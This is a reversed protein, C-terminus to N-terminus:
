DSRGLPIGLESALPMFLDARAFTVLAVDSTGSQLEIFREPLELRSLVDNLGDIVARVNCWRGHNQVPFSYGADRHVLLLRFDGNSETTQVVEDVVFQPGAIAALERVTDDHDVPNGVTKYFVCAIRKWEDLLRWVVGRADPETQWKAELDQLIESSAPVDGCAPQLKVAVEAPGIDHLLWRVTMATEPELRDVTGQALSKM